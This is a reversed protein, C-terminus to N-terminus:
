PTESYIQLTYKANAADNSSKQKLNVLYRGPLLISLHKLQQRLHDHTFPVSKPPKGTKTLQASYDALSFKGDITIRIEVRRPETIDFSFYNTQQDWTALHGRIQRPQSDNSPITGLPCPEDPSFGRDHCALPAIPRPIFQSQFLYGKSITNNATTNEISVYYDGPPAARLFLGFSQGTIGPTLDRVYGLTKQSSLRFLKPKILATLAPAQVSQATFKLKLIGRTPLHILFWQTQSNTVQSTILQLPTTITDRYDHICPAELTLAGPCHIDRQPDETTLHSPNGAAAPQAALLLIGLGWILSSWQIAM